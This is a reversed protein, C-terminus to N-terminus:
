SFNIMKLIVSSCKPDTRLIENILNRFVKKVVLSHLLFTVTHTCQKRQTM